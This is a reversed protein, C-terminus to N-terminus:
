IIWDLQTTTTKVPRSLRLGLYYEDYPRSYLLPIIHSWQDFTNRWRSVAEDNQVYFFLLSVWGDAFGCVNQFKANRRTADRRTKPWNKMEKLEQKDEENLVKSRVIREKRCCCRFFLCQILVSFPMEDITLVCVSVQKEDTVSHTM